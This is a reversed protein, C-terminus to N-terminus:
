SCDRCSWKEDESPAEDLGVCDFHFWKKECKENDCAIMRGSEPQDCYCYTQLASKAASEGETDEALATNDTKQIKSRDDDVLCEERDERKRKSADLGSSPKSKQSEEGPDCTNADPDHLANVVKETGMDDGEVTECMEPDVWSRFLM